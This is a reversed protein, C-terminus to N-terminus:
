HPAENALAERIRLQNFYKRIVRKILVDNLAAVTEYEEECINVAEIFMDVVLDHLGPEPPFFMEMDKLADCCIPHVQRFFAILPYGAIQEMELDLGYGQAMQELWRDTGSDKLNQDLINRSKPGLPLNRDYTRTVVLRDHLIEGAYDIFLKIKLKKCTDIYGLMEEETSFWSYNQEITNDEYKQRYLLLFPETRIFDQGHEYQTGM